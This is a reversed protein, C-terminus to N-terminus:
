LSLCKFPIDKKAFLIYISCKLTGMQVASKNKLRQLLVRSIFYILYRIKPWVFM